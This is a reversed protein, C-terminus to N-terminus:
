CFSCHNSSDHVGQYKSMWMHLTQSTSIYLWLLCPYSKSPPWSPRLLQDWSQAETHVTSNLAKSYVSEKCTWVIWTFGETMIIGPEVTLSSARCSLGLMQFSNVHLIGWVIAQENSDQTSNLKYNHITKLPIYLHEPWTWSSASDM